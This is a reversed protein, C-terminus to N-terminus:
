EPSEEIREAYWSGGSPLGAALQTAEWTGELRAAAGRAMLKGYLTAAYGVQSDIRELRVKGSVLTGRLSGSWNGSLRYTGQVLTGDLQLAMLGEQGGPEMVVRWTGSLPDPEPGVQQELRRIEEEIAGILAQTTLVGRRIRQMSDVHMMLEAEAQRLDQDRLRLSELSEGQTQATALDSAGQEVRIWAEQLKGRQDELEAMDLRLLDSQIKLQERLSQTLPQAAFAPSAVALVLLMRLARIMDSERRLPGAGCQSYWGHGSELRLPTFALTSIKQACVPVAQGHGAM